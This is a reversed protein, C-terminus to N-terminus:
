VREHVEPTIVGHSLNEMRHIKLRLKKHWVHPCTWGLGLNSLTRHEADLVYMGEIAEFLERSTDATREYGSRTLLLDIFTFLFQLNEATGALVFPNIRFSQLGDGFQMHVYSGDHKATIQRYSGGIDLIFTHPDYKQSHDIFLNALVSKGSGPAGFILTGLRDSDHLSFYYPTQDNTELVVLHEERLHRNLKDGCRPAYLFSLDAYNASLLWTRRLNFRQNGPIIALYANLANYTEAILGGEHNGFIKIVDAAATRVSAEANWGYLVITFSFEGLYEGENNIRALTRDLDEVDNLASKDAIVNQRNGRNVVLSIISPIDAVWQSWHFHSQAARIATIATENLVRRFESCLIFNTKLGLLDRLVNPFTNHPPERLSLVQLQAAGVSLGNRTCSLPSSALYYDVHCDHKLGEAGSIEPDLNVLLRFFAFTEQKDLLKIGLLDGVHRQFAQAQGLLHTRNRELENTLVRLVKKTSLARNIAASTTLKAPELLVVYVLQITYLGRTKSQLHERRSKVTKQVASNAYDTRQDIAARDQKIVYQYLRFREDFCRWAVAARRTHAELTGDTLCEYDIGRVGFAIGVQNAKTLFVHQDIFRVPALLSHFAGADKYPKLFRRLKVMAARERGRLIRPGM